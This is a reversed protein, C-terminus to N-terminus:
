NRGHCIYDVVDSAGTTTFTVSTTSTYSVKVATNSSTLDSATCIPHVSYTGTWTYTVSNSSATLEGDLDTNSSTNSQLVVVSGGPNGLVVADNQQVGLVQNGANDNVQFCDFTSAASAPCKTTLPQATAATSQISNTATTGPNTVVANPNGGSEGGGGVGTLLIYCGPAVSCGSPPAPAQFSNLTVMGIITAGSTPNSSGLDTAGGALSVSIGVADGVAPSPTDFIVQVLGSVAITANGSTGCGGTVVGLILLEGGSTSTARGFNGTANNPDVKALGNCTTGNGSNPYTYSLPNAGLVLQYSNGAFGTATVTVTYTGPPAAFQYNGFADSTFPNSLPQTLAINSFITSTLVPTCPIGSAGAACVTITADAIPTTYGNVVKLAVNPPSMVGQGFALLPSLLFVFLIKRM